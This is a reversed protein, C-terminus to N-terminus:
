LAQYILAKPALIIYGREKLFAIATEELQKPETAPRSVAPLARHKKSYRLYEEQIKALKGEYIPDQSTFMYKGHSTEQLLGSRNFAVWFNRNVPLGCQKFKDILQKSTFPLNTNQLQRKAENLPGICKHCNFSKKSM